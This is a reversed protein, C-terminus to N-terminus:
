SISVQAEWTKMRGSPQKPSHTPTWDETAPAVDAAYGNIAHLLIIVMLGYAIPRRQPWGCSDFAIPLRGERIVRSREKIYHATTYDASDIEVLNKDSSTAIPANDNVELYSRLCTPRWLTIYSDPLDSNFRWSNGLCERATPFVGNSGSPNRPCELRSSRTPRIRKSEM